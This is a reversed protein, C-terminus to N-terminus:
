GARRGADAVAGRATRVIGRADPGPARADPHFWHCTACAGSAKTEPHRAAWDANGHCQRCTAIAPLLLDEAQESTGAAHCTACRVTKHQGHPFQSRQYFRGILHVPAIAFTLRGQASDRQVEHCDRCVGGPLFPAAARLDAAPALGPSAPGAGPLARAAGAVTPRPAVPPGLGALTAVVEAPKGHPLEVIRGSADAVALSHCAGCDREMAVPLFGPGTKEPRHCDACGLPRGYAQLRQAMRAVANAASLHQAHSFRLGNRDEPRRDLPVQRLLPRPGEFGAVVFPRFEPHDERWDGADRLPTDSLRHSLDRHCGACGSTEPNSLLKPGEHETHCVTCRGPPLGAMARAAAVPGPPEALVALLRDPRAHDHADEHCSRCTSDTVSEFPAQHCAKCDAVLRAHASSMPGSLWARDSRPGARAFHPEAALARATAATPPLPRALFGAIPWALFALLVVLGLVWAATRRGAVPPTLRDPLARDVPAQELTLLIAGAEAADRAITLRYSGLAITRPEALPLPGPSAPHGDVLVPAEPSLVVEGGAGAALMLHRLAVALDPIEIDCDTARGITVPGPGLDRERVIEGGALRQSVQRLRFRAPPPPM